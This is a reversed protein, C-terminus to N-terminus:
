AGRRQRGLPLLERCAREYEERTNLNQLLHGEPDYARWEEPPVTRLRLWRFVESIRRRGARLAREMPALCFRRYVACLPEYGFEASTPVVGDVDSAAATEILFQLFEESAYPMDCGVVLNLEAKSDSLAAHIGGLPGAEPFIDEVVRHGWGSYKAAEGVVAVNGCAQRVRQAVFAGLAQGGFSLLAKDHGMRRSKGGALVYGACSIEQREM